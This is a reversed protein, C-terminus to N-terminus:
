RCWTEQLKKRPDDEIEKMLETYTVMSQGKMKKFYPEEQFIVRWPLYSIKLGRFVLKVLNTCFSLMATLMKWWCINCGRGKYHSRTLWPLPTKRTIPAALMNRFYVSLFTVKLQMGVHRVELFDKSIDIKTLIEYTLQSRQMSNFFLKENTYNLLLSAYKRQFPASIYRM